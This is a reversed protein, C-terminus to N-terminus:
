QLRTVSADFQYTGTGTTCATYATAYQIVTGNTSITFDGYAYANALSTQFFFATAATSFGANSATNGNFAPTITHATGNTDTWTFSPIVKGATVSSCATGTEIFNWFIHYQGAQNCAGASAACLTATTIAATKATQHIASPQTQVFLKKGGGNVQSAFDHLTSDAFIQDQSAAATPAAAEAMQAIPTQLGFNLNLYYPFTNTSENFQGITTAGNEFVPGPVAAGEGDANTHIFIQYNAQFAATSSFLNLLAGSGDGLINHNGVIQFDEGTVSVLSTGIDLAGITIDMGNQPISVNARPKLIQDLTVGTVALTGQACLCLASAGLLLILRRIM